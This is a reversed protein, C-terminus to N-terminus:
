EYIKIRHRPFQMNHPKKCLVYFKTNLFKVKTQAFTHLQKNIQHQMPNRLAILVQIIRDVFYICELPFARILVRQLMERTMLKKAAHMYAIWIHIADKQSGKSLMAIFHVAHSYHEAVTRNSKLWTIDYFTPFRKKCRLASINGQYDLQGTIM